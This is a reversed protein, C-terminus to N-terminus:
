AHWYVDIPTSTQNLVFSVPYDVTTASAAQEYIQRKNQGAIALILQSAGLLARLTMSIREHSAAPPTVHLYRGTQAPDLGQALQAARPFLSATHGDDGMGLVVLDLHETQRNAQELSRDLNAPDCVLGTFRASRAENTLLYTRVLHENSDANDPAVFREDVLRVLVRTWDVDSRQSLAQFLAIPSHGGSVALCARGNITIAARLLAAIRASLAEVYGENTDFTRLM